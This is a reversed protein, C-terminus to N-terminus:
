QPIAVLLILACVATTKLHALKGVEQASSCASDHANAVFSKPRTIRRLERLSLIDSQFIACALVIPHLM